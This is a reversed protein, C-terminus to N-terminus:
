EKVNGNSTFMPFKVETGDQFRIFDSTNMQKAESIFENIFVM